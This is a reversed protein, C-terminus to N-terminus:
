RTRALLPVACAPGGPAPVPPPVLLVTTDAYQQVFTAADRLASWSRPLGRPTLSAM